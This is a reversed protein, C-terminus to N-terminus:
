GGIGSMAGRETVSDPNEFTHCEPKMLVANEMADIIEDDGAGGRLLRRLDVGDGFCLCPKLFGAATLRVRSCDSCFKRSVAHIFGINGCLASSTYYEAPGSGRKESTAHFDTYRNRLVDLAAMYGVHEISAGAGIPMLEIFRVDIPANEALAAISIIEDANERLLVTNTKMRIGLEVGRFIAALPDAGSGNLRERREPVLSDLSVNIGDIGIEALSGIAGGLLLGNTTLTVRRVGDLSKLRRIFEVCGKEVLPEGGTIKFDTFGISVALAAIRMLEDCSLPEEHRIPDPMCYRCRLNCRDTVSIRMYNITRGFRDVM